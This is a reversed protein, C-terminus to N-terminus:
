IPYVTEQVQQAMLKDKGSSQQMVLLGFTIEM